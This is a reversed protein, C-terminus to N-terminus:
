HSLKEHFSVKNDSIPSIYNCFCTLSTENSLSKTGEVNQVEGGHCFLNM